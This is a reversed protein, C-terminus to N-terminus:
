KGSGPHRASTVSKFSSRNEALVQEAPSMQYTGFLPGHTVTFPPRANDLRQAAVKHFFLQGLALGPRIKVAVEGVNCLELTVTGSTNPQVASATVVLLGRRGWISRGVVYAMLDEPFRYWELTTGLVLQGPHLYLETGMQIFVETAGARAGNKDARNGGDITSGHLELTHAEEIPDHVPGRGRRLFVFRTGLHFDLSAPEAKEILATEDFFPDVVLRQKSPTARDM